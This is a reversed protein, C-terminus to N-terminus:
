VLEFMKEAIIGKELQFFLIARTWINGICKREIRIAM